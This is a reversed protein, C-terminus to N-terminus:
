VDLSERVDSLERTLAAVRESLRHIQEVVPSNTQPPANDKSQGAVAIPRRIPALRDFMVHAHSELEEIQGMLRRVAVACPSEDSAALVVRGSGDPVAISVGPKQYAVM